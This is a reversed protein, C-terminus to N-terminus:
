KKLVTEFFLIAKTNRDVAVNVNDLIQPKKNSDQLPAPISPNTLKINIIWVKREEIKTKPPKGSQYQTTTKDISLLQGPYKQLAIEKAEQCSIEEKDTTFSACPDTIKATPAPVINKARQNNAPLFVLKIVAILIFILVVVVALLVRKNQLSFLRV